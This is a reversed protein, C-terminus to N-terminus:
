LSQYRSSLVAAISTSFAATNELLYWDSYGGGIAFTVSEIFGNLSASALEAHFRRLSDEYAAVDVGGAPRHSFVYTLM